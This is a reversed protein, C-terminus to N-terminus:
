YFVCRCRHRPRSKFDSAQGRNWLWNDLVHPVVGCRRSLQECAVVACARIEHEERGPDLLRGADIQEALGDDYVLIGECRLVHPVVNDAFITLRDLDGFSAVGALALDAALLQARKYFPPDRFLAMGSALQTALREASGGARAVRDRAGGDGLWRGLDRLAQAFLSMLEHDPAQGLVAAITRADISCLAGNPWPGKLRFHDTLRGAITAYGSRGPEKRLTPFWGSGFNISDLTVFYRAVEEPPGELYHLEADLTETPIPSSAIERALALEAGAAIRVSRASEAIAACRERIEDCLPM